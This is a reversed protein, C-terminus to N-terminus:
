MELCRSVVIPSSAAGGAAAAGAVSGATVAQGLVVVSNRSAESLGALPGSRPEEVEPAEVRGNQVPPDADNEAWMVESTM